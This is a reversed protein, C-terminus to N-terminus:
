FNIQTNPLAQKLSQKDADSLQNGFLDLKKLNKLAFLAQPLKSLENTSLDLERLNSLQAFTAPLDTLFNNRLQLSRLNKLQNINDPLANVANDNLNLDSLRTMLGLAQGPNVIKNSSLDLTVIYPMKGFKDSLKEFNNDALILSSLFELKEMGNPLDTIDSATFDACFVKDPQDFAVSINFCEAGCNKLIMESADQNGYKMANILDQCYETSIYGEKRALAEKSVALQYYADAYDTKTGVAYLFERIAGLYDAKKFNELGNNYYIKPDEDQAQALSALSLFCCTFILLSKSALTGLRAPALFESVIVMGISFLTKMNYVM